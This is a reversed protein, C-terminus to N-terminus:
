VAGRDNPHMIFLLNSILPGTVRFRFSVKGRTLMIFKKNKICMLKTATFNSASSELIKVLLWKTYTLKPLNLLIVSQHQKRTANLMYFSM